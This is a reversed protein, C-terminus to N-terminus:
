RQVYLGPKQFESSDVPSRSRSGKLLRLSRFCGTHDVLQQDSEGPLGVGAPGRNDVIEGALTPLNMQSDLRPNNLTERLKSSCNRGGGPYREFLAWVHDITWPEEGPILITNLANVIQDVTMDEGSLQSAIERAADHDAHIDHEITQISRGAHSVV